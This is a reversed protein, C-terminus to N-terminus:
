TKKARSAKASGKPNRLFIVQSPNALWNFDTTLEGGKKISTVTIWM